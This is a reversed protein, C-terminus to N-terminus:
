ALFGSIILGEGFDHAQRCKDVPGHLLGDFGGICTRGSHDSIIGFYDPIIHDSRKPSGTQAPHNLTWVSGVDSDASSSSSYPVVEGALGPVSM